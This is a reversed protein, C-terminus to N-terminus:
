PRSGTPERLLAASTLLRAGANKMASVARALSGHLDVGRCADEVVAVEYDLSRADLASHLVSFDTALGCLVLREAKEARLYGRLGTGTKRDNDYFASYSDVAPNSGKAVVLETKEVRLGSHFAAGFTGQVCHDPWLIQQGYSMKVTDYPVKGEHSSAFSLHGPPHWDRTLIVRPFRRMLSNIVPVVEDGGAVELVGGPCFDNQVDVVILFDNSTLAM